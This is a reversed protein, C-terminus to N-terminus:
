GLPQWRQPRCGAPGACVFGTLVINKGDNNHTQLNKTANKHEINM